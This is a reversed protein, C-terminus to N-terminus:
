NAKLKINKCLREDTHHADKNKKIWQQIFTVSCMFFELFVSKEISINGGSLPLLMLDIKSTISGSISGVM